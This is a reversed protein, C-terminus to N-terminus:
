ISIIVEYPNYCIQRAHQLLTNEGTFLSRDSVLCGLASARVCLLLVHVHEISM